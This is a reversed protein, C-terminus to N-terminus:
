ISKIFAYVKGLIESPSNDFPTNKENSKNKLLDILEKYKKAKEESLKSEPKEKKNLRFAEKVYDNVLKEMEKYYLKFNGRNALPVINNAIKNLYKRKILIIDPEEM